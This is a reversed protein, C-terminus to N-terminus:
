MKRNESDLFFWGASALHLGAAYQGSSDKKLYGMELIEDLEEIEETAVLSISSDRPGQGMSRFKEVKGAPLIGTRQPGTFRHGQEEGDPFSRPQVLRGDVGM